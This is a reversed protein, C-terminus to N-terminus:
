WFDVSLEKVVVLDHLATRFRNLIGSIFRPDAHFQRSTSSLKAPKLLGSGKFDPHFRRSQCSLVEFIDSRSRNLNEVNDSALLASWHSRTESALEPEVVWTSTSNPVQIEQKAPLFVKPIRFGVPESSATQCLNFCVVIMSFKWLWPTSNIKKWSRDQLNKHKM